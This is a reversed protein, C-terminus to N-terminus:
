TPDSGAFGEQKTTSTNSHSSAGMIHSMEEDQLRSMVEKDLILKRKEM